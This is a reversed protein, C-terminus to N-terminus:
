SSPTKFSINIQYVCHLLAILTGRLRVYYLNKVKAKFNIIQWVEQWYYYYSHTNKHALGQPQVNKFLTKIYFTQYLKISYILLSSRM